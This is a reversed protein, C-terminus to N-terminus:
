VCEFILKWNRCLEIVDGLIVDNNMSLSYEKTTSVFSSAFSINSSAIPNAVYELLSDVMAVCPDINSVRQISPSNRLFLSCIDLGYYIVKLVFLQITRM